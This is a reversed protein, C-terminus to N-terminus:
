AIAPKADLAQMWHRLREKLWTDRGIGTMEEDDLAEVIAYVVGAEGHANWAAQLTRNRHSGHRLSFMISNVQADIARSNGVWTEGTAACTLSYVGPRSRIEKYDRVLDRRRSKEM